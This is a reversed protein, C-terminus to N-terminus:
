KVGFGGGACNYNRAFKPIASFILALTSSGRLIKLSRPRPLLNL